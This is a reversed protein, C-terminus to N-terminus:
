PLPSLVEARARANRLRESVFATVVALAIFGAAAAGLNALWGHGVMAGGLSAGVAQGIYISSTNLAISAATLSPAEAALRGQQMSNTSAFGLGWVVLGATVALQSGMGDHLLVMGSLIAFLSLVCTRFVGLSSVLRTALMNGAISMLGFLTLELTIRLGSAGTLAALFPRLYTFLLFQGAGAFVTVLLIALLVRSGAIAKWSAFSVRAGVLRAPVGRALVASTCLGLAALAFYAQRWGLSSALASILPVGVALALSWGLFATAIAAPRARGEVVLTITGAAQPTFIAAVAMTVVRVALLVEWSSSMAAVAQAASVFVITAVLLTRRDIGSTLWTMLPSSICLVVAGASMLLGAAGLGIEFHHALEVLMGAPALVVSGTIFNGLMLAYVTRAVGRNAGPAAHSDGDAHITEGQPRM